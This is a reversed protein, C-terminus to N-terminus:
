KPAVTVTAEKFEGDATTPVVITTIGDSVPPQVKFMGLPGDRVLGIVLKVGAIGLVLPAAIQIPLISQSCELIETIPDTTCGTLVAVTTVAGVTAIAYTLITHMFNANLWGM